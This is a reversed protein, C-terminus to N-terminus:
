SSSRRKYYARRPSAFGRSHARARARIKVYCITIVARQSEIQMDKSTCGVIIVVNISFFFRNVEIVYRQRAFPTLIRSFKRMLHVFKLTQRDIVKLREDRRSSTMRREVPYCAVPHIFTVSFPYQFSKCRLRPDSILKVHM